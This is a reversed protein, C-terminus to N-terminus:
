EKDKNEDDYFVELGVKKKKKKLLKKENKKEFSDILNNMYDDNVNITVGSDSDNGQSETLEGLANLEQFSKYKIYTQKKEKEIRRLFAYYIITTFYAFPNTFKNCDFNDVVMICNEIGDSIMEDKYTYNIFNPKTALRNSILLFCEGIYNPIQPKRRGAELATDREKSYECLAQYMKKNDIYNAM